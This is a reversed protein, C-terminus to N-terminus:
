YIVHKLSGDRIRWQGDKCQLMGSIVIGELGFYDKISGQYQLQGDESWELAAYVENAQNQHDGFEPQEQDFFYIHREGEYQITIRM